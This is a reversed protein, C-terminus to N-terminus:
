VSCITPLTLHTYSVAQFISSIKLPIEAKGYMWGSLFFANAIETPHKYYATSRVSYNKMDLELRIHVGNFMCAEKVAPMKELWQEWYKQTRYGDCLSLTLTTKLGEPNPEDM